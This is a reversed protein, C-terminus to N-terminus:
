LNISFQLKCFIVKQRTKSFDSWAAERVARATAIRRRDEGDCVRRQRCVAGCFECYRAVDLWGLPLCDDSGHTGAFCLPLNGRRDGSRLVSDKMTGGSLGREWDQMPPTDRLRQARERFKCRWQLSSPSTLVPFLSHAWWFEVFLFSFPASSSPIDPRKRVKRASFRPFVPPNQWILPPKRGFIGSKERDLYSLRAGTQGNAPSHTIKGCSLGGVIKGM